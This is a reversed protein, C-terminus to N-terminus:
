STNFLFKLSVRLRDAGMTILGTTDEEYLRWQSADISSDTQSLMFAPPAICYHNRRILGEVRRLFSQIM